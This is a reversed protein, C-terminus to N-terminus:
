GELGFDARYHELQKQMRRVGRFLHVKVTGVAIGLAEGIEKLPKDHYHRMVFVSRETPSLCGLAREIHAQIIGAEARRDPGQAAATHQITTTMEPPELDDDYEVTNQRDARKRDLFTNLTIRHLWSSWKADGRFSPLGRYARIYAEQSLDEADHRNGTLDYALRYTTIKSREVLQRFATSDGNRARDILLKEDSL